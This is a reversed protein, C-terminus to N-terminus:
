LLRERGCLLKFPGCISTLFDSRAGMGNSKCPDAFLRGLSDTYLYMMCVAWISPIM